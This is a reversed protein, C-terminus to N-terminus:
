SEKLRRAAIDRGQQTFVLSTTSGSADTVFTIQADVVKYFFVKESEAYIPVAGREGVQVFLGGGRQSVTLVLDPALEYRGVYKGLIQPEVQIEERAPRRLAPDSELCVESTHLWCNPGSEHVDRRLRCVSARDGGALARSLLAEGDASRAGECHYIGVPSTFRAAYGAALRTVLLMAGAGIGPIGARSSRALDSFKRHSGYDSIRCIM